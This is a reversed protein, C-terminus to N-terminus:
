GPQSAVVEVSFEGLNEPLDFFLAMFPVEKGPVIGVNSQGDGSNRGLRNFIANRDLSSLENDTLINGCYVDHQQALKGDKLFINAKVKVFSRKATYDNRIKGRIVFVQGGHQNDAFDGTVYEEQLGIRMNGPDQRTASVPHRVKPASSSQSSSQSSSSSSIKSSFPNSLNPVSLGLLNYIAYAGGVIVLVVLWVLARPSIKRSSSMAGLGIAALEPAVSTGSVDASDGATEEMSALPITESFEDERYQADGEFRGESGHLAAQAQLSSDSVTSENGLALDDLSLSLSEDDSFSSAEEQGGREARSLDASLSEDLELGGLSIDDDPEQVQSDESYSMPSVSIGLDADLDPPTQIAVSTSDVGEERLDLEDLVLEQASFSSQGATSSDQADNALGFDDLSFEEGLEEGPGVEVGVAEVGVSEEELGLDGLELEDVVDADVSAEVGASEAVMFEKELGLDGLELEDVVSEEQASVLEEVFMVEKGSLEEVDIPKDAPASLAALQAEHAGLGIVDGAMILGDSGVALEAREGVSEQMSLELQNDPFNSNNSAWSSSNVEEAPSDVGWDGEESGFLSFDLADDVPDESAGGNGIDANGEAITQSTMYGVSERIDARGPVGINSKSAERFATFVHYCRSCRVKTGSTRVLNDDLSFKTGCKECSLIM